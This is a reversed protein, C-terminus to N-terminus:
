LLLEMCLLLDIDRERLYGLADRVFIGRDAELQDSITADHDALVEL